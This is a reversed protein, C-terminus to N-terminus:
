ISKLSFIDLLWLHQKSISPKQKIENSSSLLPMEHLQTLSFHITSFIFKNSKIQIVSISCHKIMHLFSFDSSLVVSHRPWTQNCFFPIFRLCPLWPSNTVLKICRNPHHSKTYKIVLGYYERPLITNILWPWSTRQLWFTHQFHKKWLDPSGFTLTEGKVTWWPPVEPSVSKAFMLSVRDKLFFRSYVFTSPYYGAHAVSYLWFIKM